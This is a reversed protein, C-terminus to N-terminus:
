EVGAETCKAAFAGSCLEDKTVYGDAVVDKVNDMTIAQPTWCSRPSTRAARPTRSPAPPRDPQEGKALAVALAAAADAEKKIAKYVTM